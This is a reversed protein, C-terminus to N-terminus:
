STQVHWYTIAKMQAPMLELTKSITLPALTSWSGKERLSTPPKKTVSSYHLLPMCIPLSLDSFMAFTMSHRAVRTKSKRKRERRGARPVALWLPTDCPLSIVLPPLDDSVSTM